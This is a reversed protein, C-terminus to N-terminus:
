KCSKSQFRLLQDPETIRQVLTTRKRWNLVIYILIIKETNKQLNLVNLEILFYIKFCIFSFSTQTRKKNMFTHFGSLHFRRYVGTPTEAATSDTQPPAPHPTIWPHTFLTVEPHFFGLVSCPPKFCDTQIWRWEESKRTVRCSISKFDPNHVPTRDPIFGAKM